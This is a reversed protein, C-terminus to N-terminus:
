RRLVKQIETKYDPNETMGNHGQGILTIITDQKKLGKKLKLSSGYYIVEDSNGHFIVIPMKCNKIYEHTEFKYKLIFTPIIRYTHRMMDTLSYYPAQLILLRPNNTSAVKAALGTGISYGLVIIKGEVYKSKLEDYTTQIDQFFQTQGDISGESKGYGRYDLMFVDYNLDTYTKAVGGWSSLSGANGHLYFIVGKSSDAKFLIANLLKNDKMRISLEEFKQDFSFKYDSELKQPFFIVKEQFFFLLVCIIIYLGAVLKLTRLLIKKM